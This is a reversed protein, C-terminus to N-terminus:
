APARLSMSFAWVPFIPSPFIKTVSRFSTTLIRVRSCPLSAMQSRAVLAFVQIAITQPSPSMSSGTSSPGTSTFRTSCFILNEKKTGTREGRRSAPLPAFAQDM